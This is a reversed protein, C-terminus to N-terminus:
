GFTFPFLAPYAYWCSVAVLVQSLEFLFHIHCNLCGFGLRLELEPSSASVWITLFKCLTSVKQCYVVSACPFGMLFVLILQILWNFAIFYIFMNRNPSFVWRYGLAFAEFQRSLDCIRVCATIFFILVLKVCGLKMLLILCIRSILRKISSDFPYKIPYWM